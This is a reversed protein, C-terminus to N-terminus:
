TTAFPMVGDKRLASYYEMAHTDWMKKVCDDISPCKPQKRTQSVLFSAAIFLPTCIKAADFNEKKKLHIVLVLAAPDYPLM